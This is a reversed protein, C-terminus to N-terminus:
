EEEKGKLWRMAKEGLSERKMKLMRGLREEVKEFTGLRDLIESKLMNAQANANDVEAILKSVMPIRRLTIDSVYGRYFPPKYGRDLMERRINFPIEEPKIPKVPTDLSINRGQKKVATTPVIICGARKNRWEITGARIDKLTFVTYIGFEDGYGVTTTHIPDCILKPTIHQLGIYAANGLLFALIFLFYYFDYAGLSLTPQTPRFVFWIFGCVLLAIVDPDSLKKGSVIGEGEEPYIETGGPKEHM